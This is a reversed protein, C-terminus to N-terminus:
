RPPLDAVASGIQAARRANMEAVCALGLMEHTNGAGGGGLAAAFECQADRYRAFVAGSAKLKRAAATAYRADEDWAALAAVAQREARRLAHESARAKGALCDRMGAQSGASCAARADEVGGAQAPMALLSAALVLCAPLSYAVSIVTRM